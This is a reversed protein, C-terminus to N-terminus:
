RLTEKRFIKLLNLDDQSYNLPMNLYAMRREELFKLIAEDSPIKDFLGIVM